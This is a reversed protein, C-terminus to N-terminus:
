NFDQAYQAKAITLAAKVANSSVTAGSIMNFNTTNIPQNTIGFDFDVIKNGIGPTESQTLVKLGMITNTDTNFGILLEIVGGYGSVNVQYIVGNMTEGVYTGYVKRVGSQRTYESTVDKFTVGTKLDGLTQALQASKAEEIVPATFSNVVALLTACLLGLVFLFLGLKIPQPLKDM